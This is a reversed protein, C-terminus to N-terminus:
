FLDELISGLATPSLERPNNKLRQPNVASALRPLDARTVGVDALRTKLGTQQMLGHLHKRASVADDCGLLTCLTHMTEAVYENGRPDIVHASSGNYEFVAGLTLAVAHGHTVGFDSTLIYSLAHPATTRAIDIAKGAEHSGTMMKERAAASPETAAEVLAENCLTIAKTSCRRSEESSNVSWFAEIGQSLADMGTAASLYSPLSATLTADLIVHSPRLLENTMSFKAGDVYLAAFHTAEAGSGSTTPVAILPTSAKSLAAKGTLLDVIPASHVNIANIMKALDLASGGGIALTLVPKAERFAAVGREVEELTPNPSFDTFHVVRHAQLLPAFAAAAGSLDYSRKGTVLFICGTGHPKLLAALSTAAPGGIEQKQNASTMPRLPYCAVLQM